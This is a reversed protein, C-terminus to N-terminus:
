VFIKIVIGYIGKDKTITDNRDTFDRNERKRRLTEYEFVTWVRKGTLIGSCAYKGSVRLLIYICNLISRSLILFQNFIIVCFFPIKEVFM